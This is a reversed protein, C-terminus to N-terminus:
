VPLLLREVSPPPTYTHPSLSSPNTSVSYQQRLSDNHVREGKLGCQSAVSDLTKM